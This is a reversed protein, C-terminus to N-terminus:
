TQTGVVVFSTGNHVMLKGTSNDFYIDGASGGTPAAQPVLRITATTSGQSDFQAAYGAPSKGYIGTGGATAVGAVGFGTGANLGYVGAGLFGTIAADTGEGVVGAGDLSATAVGRVGAGNTAHEGRVGAGSNRGLGRVGNGNGTTGAFGEVGNAGNAGGNGRVGVGTGNGTANLASANSTAQAITISNTFLHAEGEYGDLWQVWQYVLNQWWNWESSIAPASVPWGTDLKGAAPTTRNTGDTNWRPLTSPKTAM